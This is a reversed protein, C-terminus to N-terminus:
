NLVRGLAMKEAAFFDSAALEIGRLNNAKYITTAEMFGNARVLGSLIRGPGIEIFTDVKQSKCYNM